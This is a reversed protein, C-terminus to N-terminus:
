CIMLWIFLYCTIYNLLVISAQADVLLSYSNAKDWPPAALLLRGSSSELHGACCSLLRSLPRLGGVKM